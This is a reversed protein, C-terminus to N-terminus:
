VNSLNYLLTALHFPSIIINIVIFLIINFVRRTNVVALLSSVFAYHVCAGASFHHGPALASRNVLM